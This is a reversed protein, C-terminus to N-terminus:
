FCCIVQQVEARCTPCGNQVADIVSALCSMCGRHGCPVCVANKMADMCFPCESDEGANLKSEKEEGAAATAALAM